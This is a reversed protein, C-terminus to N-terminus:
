TGPSQWSRSSPQGARRARRARADGAVGMHGGQAPLAGGRDRARERARVAPTARHPGPRRSPPHRGLDQRDAGRARYGLLTRCSPSVYTRVGGPDISTILDSSNEALLRFRRESDALAVIISQQETVDSFTTVAGSITEGDRLARANLSLWRLEGHDLHLGVLQGVVDRGTALAIGTAMEGAPFPSGDARVGGREHMAAAGVLQARTRRLIREAAPNVDVITGRADHIVVGEHLADIVLRLRADLAPPGGPQPGSSAPPTSVGTRDALTSISMVRAPFDTALRAM